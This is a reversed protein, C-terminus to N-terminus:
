PTQMVDQRHLGMNGFYQKLYFETDVGTWTPDTGPNVQTKLGTLTEHASLQLSPFEVQLPQLQECHVFPAVRNKTICNSQIWKTHQEAKWGPFVM